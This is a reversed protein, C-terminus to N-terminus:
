TGDILFFLDVESPGYRRRTSGSRSLFVKWAGNERATTTKVQVRRIGVEHRLLLDYACPELPWSVDVGRLSYWAAALLPGTRRLSTLEFSEDQGRESRTGGARGDARDYSV